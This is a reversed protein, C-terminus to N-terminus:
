GYPLRRVDYIQVPGNDYILSIGRVGRFKTLGSLPVAGEHRGAESTTTQFFHGTVPAERSMRLDVFLYEIARHHITDIIRQNMHPAYYISAEEPLPIAHAYVGVLDCMSIECLVRRNRPAYRGFWKAATTNQRNVGSEFGAVHHKGPLLEWPAPWGSEMAGLFICIIATLAAPRLYRVFREPVPWTPVLVYAVALSTFLAAFTLLRGSLEAGDPAFARVALVAYYSLACAVFARPLPRETGTPARRWVLVCGVLVLAATVLTGLITLWSGATGQQTAPLAVTGAHGGFHIVGTVLTELPAGLYKLVPGAEFGVWAGALVLGTVSLAALRKARTDLRSQVFLLLALAGLTAIVVAATLHHTVILAALCVVSMTTEVKQPGARAGDDGVATELVVAGLLLAPAGYIFMSDFASHLPNLGFLFAALGAIRSDGSVRRYLYFLAVPLLIHSVAAVATGAAFLNLGSLSMISTALEELGPFVPSVPLLPNSHFLHHFVGIDLASRSHQLEDPFTFALPSYMWRVFSQQAAQFAVVIVRQRDSLSSATITLGLLLISMVWGAWFPVPAWSAGSRGGAYGVAILATGLALGIALGSLPSRGPRLSARIGAGTRPLAEASM